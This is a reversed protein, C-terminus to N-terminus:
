HRVLFKEMSIMEINRKNQVRTKEVYGRKLYFGLSSLSSDLVITSLGKNLALDELYNMLKSGLGIGHENPLVFVSRIRNGELSATGLIQEENVIVIVDNMKQLWKPLNTVSFENLLHKIIDPPYDNSNVERLCRCILDSVPQLDKSLYNRIKTKM